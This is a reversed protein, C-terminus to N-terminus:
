HLSPPALHTLQFRDPNRCTVSLSYTKPRTRFYFKDIGIAGLDDVAPRQVGVIQILEHRHLRRPRGIHSEVGDQAIREEGIPATRNNGEHFIRGGTNVIGDHRSAIPM